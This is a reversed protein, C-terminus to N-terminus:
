WFNVSAKACAHVSTPRSEAVTRRKYGSESVEAAGTAGGAAPKTATTTPCGALCSLSCALSISILRVYMASEGPAHYELFRKGAAFGDPPRPKDVLLRFGPDFIGPIGTRM